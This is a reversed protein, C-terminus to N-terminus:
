TRFIDVGLKLLLKGIVEDAFSSSIIPLDNFDIIIKNDYMNVINALRDKLPAGASRTGYSGSQKRIIFNIHDANPDEYSSEIFDVPKYQKGNITLASAMLNETSFDVTAEVITGRYRSDVRSIKLNGKEHILMANNSIVKFSGKGQHSIEYSGFLGNGQGINKDRTVGERIAKDLISVESESQFIVGLTNSIGRGCDAVLFHVKRNKKDIKNVLLVGGVPSESHVLVNDSIENIAWELAAYDSRSIGEAGSLIINFVKNVIDYHNDSDTYQQAPYFSYGQYSSTSHKRDLLNLINKDQWEKALSSKKPAIVNFYHGDNVKSLVQCILGLTECIPASELSMFDLVWQTINSAHQSISSEFRQVDLLTLKETFKFKNKRRNIM